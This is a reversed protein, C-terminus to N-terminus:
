RIQHKVHAASNFQDMPWKLGLQAGIMSGAGMMVFAMRRAVGVALEVIFVSLISINALGERPCGM